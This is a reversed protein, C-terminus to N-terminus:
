INIAKSEKLIKYGTSRVIGAEKAPVADDM